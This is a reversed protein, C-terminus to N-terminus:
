WRTNGLEPQNADFERRQEITHLIRALEGEAFGFRALEREVIDPDLIASPIQHRYKGEGVDVPSQVLSSLLFSRRSASEISQILRIAELPKYRAIAPLARDQFGEDQMWNPNSSLWGLAGNPNNEAEGQWPGAWNEVLLGLWYAQEHIKNEESADSDLDASEQRTLWWAAASKPDRDAWKTALALSLQHNPGEDGTSWLIENAALKSEILRELKGAESPFDASRALGRYYGRAGMEFDERHIHSLMNFASEPDHAALNKFVEHAIFRSEGAQHILNRGDESTWREFYNWAEAPSVRAWGQLCDCLLALKHLDRGLDPPDGGVRSLGGRFDLEGYRIYLNGILRHFMGAKEMADILAVCDELSLADIWAQTEIYCRKRASWGDALGPEKRQGTLVALLLERADSSTLRPNRRPSPVRAVLAAEGSQPPADRSASHWGMTLAAGVLAIAGVGYTISSIRM